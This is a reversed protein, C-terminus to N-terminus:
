PLFIMSLLRAYSIRPHFPIFLGPEPETGAACLKWWPVSLLFRKQQSIVFTIIMEWTDQRLIRIGKGAQAAAMLYHDEPKIAAVM